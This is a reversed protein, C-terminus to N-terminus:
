QRTISHNKRRLRKLNYENYPFFHHDLLGFAFSGHLPSKKNLMSFSEKPIELFLASKVIVLTSLQLIELNYM